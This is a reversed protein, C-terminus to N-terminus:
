RFLLNMGHIGLSVQADACLFRLKSPTMSFKELLQLKMNM